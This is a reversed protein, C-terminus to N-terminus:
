KIELYHRSIGTVIIRELIESSRAERVTLMIEEATLRNALTGMMM